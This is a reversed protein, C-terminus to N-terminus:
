SVDIWIYIISAIFELLNLTLRLWLHLTTTWILDRVHHTYGGLVVNYENADYWHTHRRYKLLNMKIGDSTFDLLTPHLDLDKAYMEYVM